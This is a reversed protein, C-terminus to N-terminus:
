KKAGHARYAALVALDVTGGEGMSGDLTVISVFDGLSDRRTTISKNKAKRLANWAADLEKSEADDMAKNTYERTYGWVREIFDMLETDTRM